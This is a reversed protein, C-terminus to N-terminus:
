STGGDASPADAFLADMRTIILTQLANGHFGSCRFGGPLSVARKRLAVLLGVGASDLFTVGSADVSIGSMETGKWTEDLKTRYEPVNVATLEKPLVVHLRQDPEIQFAVADQKRNADRLLRLAEPMDSVVDIYRDMRIFSLAHALRRSSVLVCFPRGASRCRRNLDLLEGLERSDLWDREETDVVLALAADAECASRFRALESAAGSTPFAVRMMALDQEAPGNCQAAARPQAPPVPGFRLLLLRCLTVFLFAINAVYRRFLRRPDSLMRWLWELALRQVWRPARKQAGALFDLSGGIGISVPVKWRRIHMNVWKEQKPAGFAVFLIDPAAAEIRALIGANDMELIDAKPPSYCGAVRLGPYREALRATAREAVGPAGGLGFVSFGEHAALEAFLPVLDSGTVREKLPHGLLRSLWVIPIGDAVVLDAELLIRQLEPDRWAQMLFDMNATAIYAPRKSIVRQRVWEVTDAFSVNSFPIGLVAVTEPALNANDTTANMTEEM